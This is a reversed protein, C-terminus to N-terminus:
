PEPPSARAVHEDGASRWRASSRPALAGVERLGLRWSVVRTSVRRRRIPGDHAGDADDDDVVGGHAARHKALDELAVPSMSTTPSAASPASACPILYRAQARREDGDVDLHGPGIPQGGDAPDHGLRRERNEDHRTPGASSVFDGREELGDTAAREIEARLRGEAARILRQRQASEDPTKPSSDHGDHSVQRGVRIRAAATPPAHAAARRTRTMPMPRRRRPGAATASIRAPGAGPSASRADRDHLVQQDPERTGEAPTRAVSITPQLDLEDFSLHRKTRAGHEDSRVVPVEDGAVVIPKAGTSAGGSAPCEARRPRETENARPRERVPRAPRPETRYPHHRSALDRRWPGARSPEGERLTLVSARDVPHRAGRDFASRRAPGERTPSM